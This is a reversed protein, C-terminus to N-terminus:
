GSCSPYPPKEGAVIDCLRLELLARARPQWLPTDMEPKAVAAGREAWQFTYIDKQSFAVLIAAMESIGQVDGCAFVFLHASQAGKVQVVGEDWAVFSDPCALRFGNGIPTVFDEPTAYHEVAGQAGTITIMQSWAEVTEGQPVFELIYAGGSENEYATEFRNPVPFALIRSYVPMTGIVREPMDQAFAYPPCIATAVTLALSLHRM